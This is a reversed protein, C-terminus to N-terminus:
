YNGQTLCSRSSKKYGSASNPAYSSASFKIKRYVNIRFDLQELEKNVRDKTDEPESEIAALLKERVVGYHFIQNKSQQITCLPLRKIIKRLDQRLQKYPKRKCNKIITPM